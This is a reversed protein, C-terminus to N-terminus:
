EGPVDRCRFFSRMMVVLLCFPGESKRLAIVPCNLVGSYAFDWGVVVTFSCLRGGGFGAGLPLYHMQKKFYSRLECAWKPPGKKKKGLPEPDGSMDDPPLVPLAALLVAMDSWYGPRLENLDPQMVAGFLKASGDPQDYM